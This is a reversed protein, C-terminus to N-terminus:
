KKRCRFANTFADQVLTSAAENLRDPNDALFKKVILEAQTADPPEDTPPQPFCPRRSAKQMERGMFMGLYYGDAFGRVYGLCGIENTQDKANCAKYLEIGTFAESRDSQFGLFGALAACFLSIHFKDRM